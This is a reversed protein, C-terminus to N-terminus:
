LLNKYVNTIKDVLSDEVAKTLPSKGETVTTVIADNLKASPTFKYKISDETRTITIVGISIDIDTIYNQKIKDELVDECICYTAKDALKNLATTPITTLTSLEESLKNM